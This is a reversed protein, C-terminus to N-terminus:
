LEEFLIKAIQAEYRDRIEKILTELSANIEKKGARVIIGGSIKGSEKSYKLKLRNKRNFAELWKGSFNERDRSSLIIEEEGRAFRSLIRELFAQYREKSKKIGNLGSLFVESIFQQKHSLIEKKIQIRTNVVIREREKAAEQRFKALTDKKLTEGRKKQEEERRGASVLAAEKIEARKEGADSRIKKLIDELAM